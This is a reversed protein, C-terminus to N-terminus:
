SERLRPLTLSFILQYRCHNPLLKSSSPLKEYNVVLCRLLAAADNNSKNDDSRIIQNSTIKVSLESNRKGPGHVGELLNRNRTGHNLGKAITKSKTIIPHKDSLGILCLRNSHMMVCTDEGNRSLEKSDLPQASSLKAEVEESTMYAENHCKSEKQKPIHYYHTYYRESVTPYNVDLEVSEEIPKYLTM